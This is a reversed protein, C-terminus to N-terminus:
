PGRGASGSGGPTTTQYRVPALEMKLTSGSDDSGLALKYEVGDLTITGVLVMNNNRYIQKRTTHLKIASSSSGNWRVGAKKKLVHKGSQSRISLKSPTQADIGITATGPDLKVATVIWNGYIDIPELRGQVTKNVSITNLYSM